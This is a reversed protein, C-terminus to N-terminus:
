NGATSGRKVMLPEVVATKSAPKDGYAPFSVTPASRRMMVRHLAPVTTPVPDIPSIPDPVPMPVPLSPGGDYRYTDDPRPTPAVESRDLGPSASMGARAGPRLVVSGSFYRGQYGVVISPRILAPMRPAMALSELRRYPQNQFAAARPRPPPPATVPPPVYSDMPPYYVPPAIEIPACVPASYAYRWKKWFCIPTTKGDHPANGNLMLTRANAGDTLSGSGALLRVEDNARAGSTTMAAVGCAAIYALRLRPM